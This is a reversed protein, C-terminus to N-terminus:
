WKGEAPYSFGLSAPSCFSHKRTEKNNFATRM